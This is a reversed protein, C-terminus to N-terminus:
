EAGTATLCTTGDSDYGLGLALQRLEDDTAASDVAAGRLELCAIIQDRVKAFFADQAEQNVDSLQYETELYFSHRALCGDAIELTQAESLGPATAAFSYPIVPFPGTTDVDGGVVEIGAERMCELTLRVGQAYEDFTVVGDALSARQAESMDEIPALDEIEAQEEDWSSRPSSPSGGSPASTGVLSCGGLTLLALAFTAALATKVTSTM